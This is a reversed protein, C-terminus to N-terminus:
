AAQTNSRDVVSKRLREIESLLDLLARADIDVRRDKSLMADISHERLESIYNAPIM